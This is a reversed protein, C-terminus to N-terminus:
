ARVAKPRSFVPVFFQADDTDFNPGDLTDFPQFSVLRRQGGGLPGAKVPITRDATGNTTGNVAESADPVKYPLMKNAVIEVQTIGAAKPKFSPDGLAKKPPPAEIDIMAQNAATLVAERAQFPTVGPKAQIQLFTTLGNTNIYKIELIDGSQMVYNAVLPAAKVAYTAATWLINLTVQWISQFDVDGSAEIKAPAPVGNLKQRADRYAKKADDTMLTTLNIAAHWSAENGEGGSPIAYYAHTCFCALSGDPTGIETSVTDYPLAGSTISLPDVPPAKFISTGLNQAVDVFNGPGLEITQPFGNMCLMHSIDSTMEQAPNGFKDNIVPKAWLGSYTKQTMSPDKPLSLTSAKLKTNSGTIAAEELVVQARSVSDIFTPMDFPDDAKLVDEEPKSGDALLFLGAVKGVTGVVSGITGANDILFGAASSVGDIIADFWGM